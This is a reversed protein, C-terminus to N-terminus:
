KESSDSGKRVKILTYFKEKIVERRDLRFVDLLGCLAPNSRYISKFDVKAYVSFNIIGHSLPCFKLAGSPISLAQKQTIKEANRINKLFFRYADSTNFCYFRGFIGLFRKGKIEKATM